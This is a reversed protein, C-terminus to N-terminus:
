GKAGEKEAARGSVFATVWGMRDCERCGRPKGGCAPCVAHPMADNAGKIANSIDIDIKPLHGALYVGAAPDDAIQRYIAAAQRIAAEAEAFRERSAFVPLLHEPVEGTLGNPPAAPTPLARAKGDRGIRPADCSSVNGTPLESRVKAVFTHSVGAYDAIWRDSKSAWEEDALLLSVSRRKDAASRRLGHSQNAAVAFLIAERLGGVYVQCALTQLGAQHAAQVRHHGDGIFYRSGDYFIVPEPFTAGALMAAAYEDVAELDIKDRAQTAASEVAPLLLAVALNLRSSQEGGNRPSINSM